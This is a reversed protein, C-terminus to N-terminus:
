PRYGCTKVTGDIAIFVRGTRRPHQPQEWLRWQEQWPSRDAYVCLSFGNEFMITVDQNSRFEAGVARLPFAHFLLLDREAHLLTGNREHSVPIYFDNRCLVTRDEFTMRWSCQVHFRIDGGGSSFGFMAMDGAFHLEYLDTGILRAPLRKAASRKEIGM